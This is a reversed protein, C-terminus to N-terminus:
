IHILSLDRDLDGDDDLGGIARDLGDDGGHPGAGDIKHHLGDAGLAQLNRQAIRQFEARELVFQAM